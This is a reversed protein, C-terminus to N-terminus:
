PARMMGLLGGFGMMHIQRKLNEKEMAEGESKSV